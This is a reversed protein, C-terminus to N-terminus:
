LMPIPNSDSSGVMRRACTVGFWRSIIGRALKQLRSTVGLVRCIGSEWANPKRREARRLEVWGVRAQACAAQAKAMSSASGGNGTLGARPPAQNVGFSWSEGTEGGRHAVGDPTVVQTSRNLGRLGLSRAEPAGREGRSM